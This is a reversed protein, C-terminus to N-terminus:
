VKLCILKTKKFDQIDKKKFVFKDNGSSSDGNFEDVVKKIDLTKRKLNPIKYFSPIFVKPNLQKVLKIIKEQSLFPEGGSPGILIDIEEFNELIEPSLDSSLHGLIGISIDEWDVVFVSKFFKSSSEAPLNFGKIKVGRYDYEGAGPIFIDSNKPSTGFEFPWSSITKIYIDSKSRPASLGSSEDPLDTTLVVEGNQIKFCGEGQWSIIM